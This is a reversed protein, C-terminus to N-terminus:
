WRQPGSTEAIAIGVDTPSVEFERIEGDELAAVHTPGTTTLEDLGDSGHV